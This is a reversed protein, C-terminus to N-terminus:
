GLQLLALLTLLGGLAFLGFVALRQHGEPRPLLARTWGRGLVTMAIAFALLLLTMFGDSGIVSGILATAFGTFAWSFLVSLTVIAIRMPRRWRESPITFSTRQAHVVVALSIASLWLGAATGGLPVKSSWPARETTFQGLLVFAWLGVGYAWAIPGLLPRAKWGRFAAQVPLPEPPPGAEPPALADLPPPPPLAEDSM